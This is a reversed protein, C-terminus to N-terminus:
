FKVYLAAGFLNDSDTMRDKLPNTHALRIFNGNAEIHQYQLRLEIWEALYFSPIFSFEWREQSIGWIFGDPDDVYGAQVVTRVYQNWDYAAIGLLGFYEADPGGAFGALNDTSSTFYLAQVGLLANPLGTYTMDTNLLWGDDSNNGAFFAGYSANAAFQLDDSLQYGSYVSYVFSDNNNIDGDLGNSIYPSIVLDEGIKVDGMVGTINHPYLPFVISPLVGWWDWPDIPELGFPTNFKGGQVSWDDRDYRAYLQELIFDDDDDNGRISNGYLSGSGVGGRGYSLNRFAPLVADLDENIYDLDTTFSLESSMEYRLDLEVVNASFTSLDRDHDYFASLMVWGGLDINGISNGYTHLEDPQSLDSEEITTEAPEKKIPTSQAELEHLRQIIDEVSQLDSHSIGLREEIVYVRQRYQELVDNHAYCFNCVAIGLLFLCVRM